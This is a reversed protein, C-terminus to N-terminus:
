TGTWRPFTGLVDLRSAHRGAEALAAVGADGQADTDVDILFRYRWPQGTPRAELKSLNIGRAAFPALIGVLAGPANATEALLATKMADSRRAPLSASADAGRRAVVLFRTQNDPRDEVDAALIELGYRGAADRGAIAGLSPDAGDAVDRAAGATDYAVVAQLGPWSALFRTCQALAVPHSRVRTLADLRAGPLGLVCHHIPTVVEGVIELPQTVLVDYVAVVSGALTNEVPLLGFDVEGRLVADAVDTVERRAVPEAAQRFFIRAAVDSFAGLEGQFAVRMMSEAM